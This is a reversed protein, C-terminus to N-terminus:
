LLDVSVTESTQILRNQVDFADVRVTYTHGGEARAKVSRIFEDSGDLRTSTTEYRGVVEAAEPDWVVLRYQYADPVETWHVVPGETSSAVSVVLVDDAQRSRLADAPPGLSLRLGIGVAFVVVAAAMFRAVGIKRRPLRAPERDARTIPAAVPEAPMEPLEFEENQAKSAELAEYAMQLLERADANQALYLAVEERRQPPLTGAMFAALTYEDMTNNETNMGHKM